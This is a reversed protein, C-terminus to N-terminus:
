EETRTKINIPLMATNVMKCQLITSKGCRSPGVLVTFENDEMTLNLEEIVTEPGYGKVLNELRNEPMHSEVM